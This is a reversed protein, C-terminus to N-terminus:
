HAQLRSLHAKAWGSYVADYYSGHISLATQFDRVADATRGKREYIRGLTIYYLAYNRDIQIANQLEKIADQDRGLLALAAGYRWRLDANTPDQDILDKIQSLTLHAPPTTPLWQFMTTSQPQGNFLVELKWTGTRGELDTGLIYLPLAFDFTQWPKDKHQPAKVEIAYAPGAPDSLRLTVMTDSVLTKVKVIAYPLETNLFNTTPGVPTVEGGGFLGTSKIGKALTVGVLQNPPLSQTPPAPHGVGQLGLVLGAGAALFQAFRGISRM